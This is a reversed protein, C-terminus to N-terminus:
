NDSNLSHKTESKTDMQPLIGHLNSLLTTLEEENPEGGVKAIVNQKHVVLLGTEELSHAGISWNGTGNEVISM